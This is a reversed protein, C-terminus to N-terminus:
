DGIAGAAALTPIKGWAPCPLALPPINPILPADRVMCSGVPKPAMFSRVGLAAPQAGGPSGGAAPQGSTNGGHHHGGGGPSYRPVAAAAATAVPPTSSAHSAYSPVVSQMTLASGGGSVTFFSPSSPPASSGPHQVAVSTQGQWPPPGQIAVFGEPFHSFSMVGSPAAPNVFYALQGQVSGAQPNPTSLHLPSIIQTSGGQMAAAAAMQPSAPQLSYFSGSPTVTPEATLLMVTQTAAPVGGSSQQAFMQPSSAQQQQPPPPPQQQQQQVVFHQQMLQPSNPQSSFLPPLGSYPSAFSAGPSMCNPNYLTPQPPKVLSFNGVPFANSPVVSASASSTDATARRHGSDPALIRNNGYDTTSNSASAINPLQPSFPHSMLLVYSGELTPSLSTQSTDPSHAYAVNIPNQVSSFHVTRSDGPSYM